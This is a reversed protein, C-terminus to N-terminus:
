KRLRSLGERATTSAPDAKLAAEYAAIAAARDGKREYLYGLQLYISTLAPTDKLIKKYAAIAEDFKEGAALAAAADLNQQLKAADVNALLPPPGPEITRVLRLELPPNPQASRIPLNASVVEFGDARVTVKYTTSRLGLIVFRGRADTAATLSKPFLAENEATITAGKIPKGREDLVTGSLRGGGMQASLSVPMFLLSLVALHRLHMMRYGPPVHAPLKPKRDATDARSGASGVAFQRNYDVAIM